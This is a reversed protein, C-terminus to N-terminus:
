GTGRCPATRASGDTVDTGPVAAEGRSARRLSPLSAVGWALDGLTMLVRSVLAVAAAAAVGTVPALALVLVGERVAVGAPTLVVLFGVTWALAYAGTALLLPTGATGELPVLLAALHVGYCAWMLLTWLLAVGLRSPSVPADLPPRRLLRLGVALLRELVRPHLLILALPALLLVERHEQLAQPGAVPLLVLAVLAGTAVNLVMVVLASAGVRARSLGAARGLDMQALVSWVSGPVYKGLQGVFFVRLAARLPVRVRGGDLGELVARWAMASAFLGLLVALSASLVAAPGLRALERVAEDWVRTLGVVLLAVALILFAGRALGAPRLSLRV